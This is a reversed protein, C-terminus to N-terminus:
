RRRREGARERERFALVGKEDAVLADPFVLENIVQQLTKLVWALVHLQM